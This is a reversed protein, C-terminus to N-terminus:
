ASSAWVAIGAVSIVLALLGVRQGIAKKRQRGTSLRGAPTTKPNRKSAEHKLRTRQSRRRSLGWRLFAATFCSINTVHVTLKCTKCAADRGNSHTGLLSALLAIAKEQGREPGVIVKKSVPSGAAGPM